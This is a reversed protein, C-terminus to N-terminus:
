PATGKREESNVSKSEHVEKAGAVPGPRLLGGLRPVNRRACVLLLAIGAAVMIVSLVQGRSLGFLLSVGEDPQRLVETAIRLVGYVILYWAGIVGPKRPKLWILALVVAVLLGDTLSQLVQSPYYATLMPRLVEIVQENGAKAADIVNQFFTSDGSVIPRLQADIEALRDPAFQLIEEPYKVSWWPPDSQMSAPLPKGWLEANVFNALRGLFFGATCTLGGLDFLHLAPVRARRAFIWCAIIVGLMGGHSAMGGRNIALLEWYPFQSSFELLPQGAQYFIAWGLRGGVLVGIIVAFMMDGAQRATLPSRGTKAFWRIVLWAIVFGAAYSLGYWRLGFQDTFQIAFPDLQHVYAEALFIVPM